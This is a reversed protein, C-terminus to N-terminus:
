DIKFSINYNYQDETVSVENIFLKDKCTLIMVHSIECAMAREIKFDKGYLSDEINQKCFKFEFPHADSSDESYEFGAQENDIFYKLKEINIQVKSDVKEEQKFNDKLKAFVTVQAINNVGYTYDIDYAYKFDKGFAKLFSAIENLNYLTKVTDACEMESSPVVDYNEFIKEIENKCALEDEKTKNELAAFRKIREADQKWIIYKDYLVDEASKVDQQTAENNTVQKTKFFWNFISM